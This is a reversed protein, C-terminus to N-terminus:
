PVTLYAAARLLLDPNDKFKGLGLNCSTCLIGRVKGTTHCHDVASRDARDKGRNDLTVVTGCIACGCGQEDLMRQADAKTIGYRSRLAQDSDKDYDYKEKIPNGDAKRRKRYEAMEANYRLRAQEPSEGPKLRASPM